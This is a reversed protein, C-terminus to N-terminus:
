NAAIGREIEKFINYAACMGTEKMYNLNDEFFDCREVKNMDVENLINNLFQEIAEFHDGAATYHIDMLCTGFDNFFQGERQLFLLPRDVYLYEALFSISDMIMADSKLFLGYYEGEELVDVNKLSRWKKEYENWSELDQFIGAKIAKYKLQPHPKFVWVTEEQYKRALELMFKYNSAFTSFVVPEDEDLTHHPAYIIKKANPNGSKKILDEWVSNNYKEEKFFPDMKPYGTYVANSEGVFAYKGAMKVAIYSEKFNKWAINHIIQDYQHFVFDKRENEAVMFGYPIYTHLTDLSYNLLYFDGKFLDIWPTLWICIDPKIEVEEWTYQGGTNFDYTQVVRMNRNSFYELNKQYEERIMEDSQGNHNALLFVYPIFKDSEELLWYLDDGIWTSAYNAIFGIIIQDKKRLREINVAEIYSKIKCYSNSGGEFQKSTEMLAYMHWYLYKSLDTELTRNDIAQLLEKAIENWNM